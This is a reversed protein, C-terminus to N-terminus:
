LTGYNNFILKWQNYAENAWKNAQNGEGPFWDPSGFGKKKGM